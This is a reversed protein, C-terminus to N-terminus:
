KIPIIKLVNLTLTMKGFELQFSGFELEVRGLENKM